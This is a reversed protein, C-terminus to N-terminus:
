SFFTMFLDDRFTSIMEYHFGYIMEFHARYNFQLFDLMLRFISIMKFHRANKLIMIVSMKFKIGIVASHRNRKSFVILTCHKGYYLIKLKRSVACFIVISYLYSILRRM